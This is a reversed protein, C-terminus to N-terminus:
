CADLLLAEPDEADLVTRSLDYGFGARAMAALQKDVPKPNATRAFAGFGRRKAYRV